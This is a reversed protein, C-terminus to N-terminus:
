SYTVLEDTLHSVDGFLRLSVRGSPLIALWTVSCHPLRLRELGRFLVNQSSYVLYRIVNAHCILLDCSEGKDSHNDKDCRPSIYRKYAEDLRPNETILKMPQKVTTTSVDPTKGLSIPAGERLLDSHIKTVNIPLLDCITRGTEQARRMTSIVIKRYNLGLYKLRIATRCSQRRGRTTLVQLNDDLTNKVYQGHRILIVHRAVPMGAIPAPIISKANLDEKVKKRKKLEEIRYAHEQASIVSNDGEYLMRNIGKVDKMTHRLLTSTQACTINAVVSQSHKYGDLALLQALSRRVHQMVYSTVSEM